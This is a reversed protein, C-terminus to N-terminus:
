SRPPRLKQELIQRLYEPLYERPLKLGVQISNTHNARFADGPNDALSNSLGILGGGAKVLDYGARPLYWRLLSSATINTAHVKAGLRRLSDVAKEYVPTGAFMPGVNGTFIVEEHVQSRLNLFDLYPKAFFSTAFWGVGGLLFSAIASWM